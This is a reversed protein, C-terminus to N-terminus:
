FIQPFTGFTLLKIWFFVSMLSVSAIYITYWPVTDSSGFLIGYQPLEIFWVCVCVYRWLNYTSRDRPFPLRRRYNKPKSPAAPFVVSHGVSWFMESKQKPGPAGLCLSPVTRSCMCIYTKLSNNLIEICWRASTSSHITVSIQLVLVIYKYTTSFHCDLDNHIKRMFISVLVTFVSDPSHISLM